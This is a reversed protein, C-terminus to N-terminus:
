PHSIATQYLFRNGCSLNQEPGRVDMGTRTLKTPITNYWLGHRSVVPHTIVMDVPINDASIAFSNTNKMNQYYCKAVRSLYEQVIHFSSKTVHRPVDVNNNTRQANQLAKISYLGSLAGRLRVLEQLASQPQLELKTWQLVRSFQKDIDDGWQKCKSPTRSFSIASPIKPPGSDGGTGSWDNFVHVDAFSADREMTEHIVALGSNENTIRPSLQLM